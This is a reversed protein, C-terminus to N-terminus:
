EFSLKDLFEERDKQDFAQIFEADELIRLLSRRILTELTVMLEGSKEPTLRHLKAGHVLKSRWGYGAKTQEFLREREQRTTGLFHATRLSLRYTMERSHAGVAPPDATMSWVAVPEVALTPDLILTLLPGDAEHPSKSGVPQAQAPDGLAQLGM